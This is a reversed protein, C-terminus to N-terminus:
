LRASAQPHRLAYTFESLEQYRAAPDPHVAKALVKDVWAPIARTEDLASAYRLRRQAARTAAKAAEAGYPLRGTLMQYAIVGLSYIDSRTSGPEGLFYEPAASTSSGPVPPAQRAMANKATDTGREACFNIT